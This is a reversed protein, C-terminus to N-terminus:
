MYMVVNAMLMAFCVSGLMIFVHFVEHCGFKEANKLPWKLGYMVGGVTYLAGGTLMWAMGAAPMVRLLPVFAILAMWGMGIYLATTLIRPKNLWFLTTFIGAIALAWIIGFMSWGWPGRLVVLCIPTYTGAILVFIMSHDMKRLALRGRVSTNVCHYLCSALYLATMSAGFVAFTVIHWVSAGYIAASVILWATCAVSLAAGIGHTLASYFRLGDYPDRIEAGIRKSKRQASLEIRGATATNTM